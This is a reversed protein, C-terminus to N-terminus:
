KKVEKWGKTTFFILLIWNIFFIVINMFMRIEIEYCIAPDFAEPYVAAYMQCEELDQGGFTFFCGAFFSSTLILILFFFYFYKNM